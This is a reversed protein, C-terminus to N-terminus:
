RAVHSFKRNLNVADRQKNPEDVLVVGPHMKVAGPAPRHEIPLDDTPAVGKVGVPMDKARHRGEVSDHPELLVGFLGPSM